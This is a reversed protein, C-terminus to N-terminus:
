CIRVFCEADWVNVMVWAADVEWRGWCGSSFWCGRRAGLGVSLVCLSAFFVSVRRLPGEFSVRPDSKVENAYRPPLITQEGVDTYIRFPKDAFRRHAEEMVEFGHRFYDMMRRVGGLDWRRTTHYIIPLQRNSPAAGRYVADAGGGLGGASYLAALALLAMVAYSLPMAAPSPLARLLAVPDGPPSALPSPAHATTNTVM